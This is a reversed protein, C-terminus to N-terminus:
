PFIGRLKTAEVLREMAVLYAAMRMTVNRQNMQSIVDIFAKHMIDALMQNVRDLEWSLHDLNQIWEFYSVVVGGANALIDPVVVIKRDQLIQDAAKTTPGNAGEVIVTAKIKGANGEHIQNELAAPILLECDLELLEENTVRKTGGHLIATDIMNGGRIHKEAREMDLGAPNYVGGTVDSLGVIPFGKEKLLLAATLGVNGAGQVIIPCTAPDIKAYNVYDVVTLMVGRGTAEQRGLSGGIQVPKGTVVGPITYGKLMSYTDMLWGMIEANTNVDPAPIDREPGIIPSIMATYRRTLRRLENRSLKSPDVTVGGKAGGYPINVVASKLSMWGALARMENLDVDQHYRIGGKCPGRVSSHQIRYGHFVELTGDDMEVPIAVVLEREPHKLPEYDRKAYGLFSAAEDMIDCMNQYPDYKKPM